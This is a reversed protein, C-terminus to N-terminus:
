APIGAYDFEYATLDKAEFEQATLELADFAEATIGDQHLGALENLAQQVSVVDGTLPSRVTGGQLLTTEIKHSLLLEAEDTYATANSYVTASQTDAYRKLEDVRQQILATQAAFRADVSATLTTLQTQLPTVQSNVYDQVYQVTVGSLNKVEETIRQVEKAIECLQASYNLASSFSANMAPISPVCYM